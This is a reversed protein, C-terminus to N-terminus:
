DVGPSQRLDSTQLGIFGQTVRASGSFKVLISTATGWLITGFTYIRFHCICAGYMNMALFMLFMFYVFYFVVTEKFATQDAAEGSKKSLLVWTPPLAIFRPSLSIFWFEGLVNIYQKRPRNHYGVCIICHISNYVACYLVIFHISYYSIVLSTIHRSTIGYGIDVYLCISSYCTSM